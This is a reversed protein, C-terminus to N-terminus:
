CLSFPKTYANQKQGKERRSGNGLEQISEKLDLHCPSMNQLRCIQLFCGKFLQRIVQFGFPFFILFSFM